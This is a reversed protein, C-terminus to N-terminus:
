VPRAPWKKWEQIVAYQDDSSYRKVPKNEVPLGLLDRLTDDVNRYRGRFKKEIVREWVEDSVKLDKQLRTGAVIMGMSMIVEQDIDVMGMLPILVVVMKDFM